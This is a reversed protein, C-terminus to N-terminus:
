TIVWELLAKRVTDVFINRHVESLDEWGLKNEDLITQNSQIEKEILKIKEKIQKKTKM